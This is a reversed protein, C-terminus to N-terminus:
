EVTIRRTQDKHEKPLTVSLVGAQYKATGPKVECPLPLVREFNGYARESIHYRGETRDSHYHKKGRIRLYRGEIDIDFDKKDMGPAELQVEISDNTERLEASILGWRSTHLPVPGTEGSDDKVPTFRTLATRAKQWLEQWGDALSDLSERLSNTFGEFRSMIVVRKNFHVLVKILSSPVTKLGPVPGM